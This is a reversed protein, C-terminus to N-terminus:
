WNTFTDITPSLTAQKSNYNKSANYIHHISLKTCPWKIICSIIQIENGRNIIKIGFMFENNMVYIKSWSIM